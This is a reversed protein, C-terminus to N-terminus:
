CVKLVKAVRQCAPDAIWVCGFQHVESWYMRSASAPLGFLKLPILFPRTWAFPVHMAANAAHLALLYPHCQQMRPMYLLFIHISLSEDM